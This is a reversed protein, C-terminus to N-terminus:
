KQCVLGTLGQHVRPVPAPKEPTTFKWGAGTGTVVRGRSGRPNEFGHCDRYVLVAESYFWSVHSHIFFVFSFSILLHFALPPALTSISYSAVSYIFHTVM